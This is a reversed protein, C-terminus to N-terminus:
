LGDEKPTETKAAKVVRTADGKEVARFHMKCLGGYKKAGARGCLCHFPGRIVGPCKPRTM